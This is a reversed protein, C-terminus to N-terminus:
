KKKEKNGSLGSAPVNPDLPPLYSLFVQHSEMARQIPSTSHLFSLFLFLRTYIMAFHRKQMDMQVYMCVYIGSQFQSIGM